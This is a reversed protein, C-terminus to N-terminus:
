LRTFRKVYGKIERVGLLLCIGYFVALAASGSLIVNLLKILLRVIVTSGLSGLSGALIKYFLGGALGGLLGGGILKLAFAALPRSDLTGIKKPLLLYLILVNAV